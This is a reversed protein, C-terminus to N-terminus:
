ALWKALAAKEEASMQGEAQQLLHLHTSMIVNKIFSAVDRKFADPVEDCKEDILIKLCTLAVNQM